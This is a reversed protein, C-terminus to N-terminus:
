ASRRKEARRRSGNSEQAFMRCAEQNSRALQVIESAVRQRQAPLLWEWWDLLARQQGTVRGRAAAHEGNPKKGRVKADLSEAELGLTNEIYRALRSGLPVRTSGDTMLAYVQQRRRGIAAAFSSKSGGFREEVVRRLNHLRIEQIEAKDM